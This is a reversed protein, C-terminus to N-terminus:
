FRLGGLISQIFQSPDLDATGGLLGDFVPELIPQIFQSPDLDAAGGPLGGFSPQLPLQLGSFIPPTVTLPVTPSTSGSFKTTDTPTFVATLSHTGATLTSTTTFAAASTEQNSGSSCSTGNIVTTGQNGSISCSTSKVVTVPGGINTDGDKFQVVGEADPPTVIAILTVPLGEPFSGSPAVTLTTTTTTAANAVGGIFLGGGIAVAVVLARAALRTMFRTKRM